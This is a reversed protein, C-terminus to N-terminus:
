KPDKEQQKKADYARSLYAVIKGWDVDIKKLGDSYAEILRCATKFPDEDYPSVNKRRSSLFGSLAKLQFALDELKDLTGNKGRVIQYIKDFCAIEDPSRDTNNTPTM